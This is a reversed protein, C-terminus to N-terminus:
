RALNPKWGHSIRDPLESYVRKLFAVADVLEAFYIIRGWKALHSGLIVRWQDNKQDVSFSPGKFFIGDKSLAGDIRREHGEVVLGFGVLEEKADQLTVM